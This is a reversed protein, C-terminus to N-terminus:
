IYDTSINFKEYLSGKLLFDNIDTLQRGEM